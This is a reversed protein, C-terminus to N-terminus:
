EAELRRRVRLFFISLVSILAGLLVALAAGQGVKDYRFANDYMHVSLVLSAGAPGGQTILFVLDFVQFAVIATCALCFIKLSLNWYQLAHQAGGYFRLSASIAALLFFGFLFLKPRTFPNIPSFFLMLVSVAAVIGIKVPDSIFWVALLPLVYAGRAAPHLHGLKWTTKEFLGLPNPNRKTM